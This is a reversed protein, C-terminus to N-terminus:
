RSVHRCEELELAKALSKWAARKLLSSINQHTKGLLRGTEVLNMELLACCVAEAAKPTWDRVVEGLMEFLLERYPDRTGATNLKILPSNRDSIADLGNGSLLFAEGNSQSINGANIYDVAGIGIAARTLLGRTKLSAMLFLTLRLAYDPRELVVQWSDGRFVQVPVANGTFVPFHAQFRRLAASLFAALERLIRQPDREAEGPAPRLAQSRVIDGTVVAYM